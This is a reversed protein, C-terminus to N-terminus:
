DQPRFRLDLKRQFIAPTDPKPLPSAKHIARVVADDYATHGSSFVLKAELVDGSPLLTVLVRAEPNGQM